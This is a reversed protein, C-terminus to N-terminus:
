VMEFDILLCTMSSPSWLYLTVLRTIASKYFEIEKKINLKQQRLFETKILLDHYEQEVRTIKKEILKDKDM